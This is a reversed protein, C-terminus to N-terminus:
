LGLAQLASCDAPDPTEVDGAGLARVVLGRVVPAVPLDAHSVQVGPCVDQLVVNLAGELRASDPPTVVSDQTTWLSIWTAGDPSEDGGNLDELLDSGPVLQRCALPCLQPYAVGATALDTGHHPSGLTVVRRAHEAGGLEAVWYRALVGGASYGVVDVSGAGRSVAADAAAAVAEAAERLDGTGNGPLRVIVAERGERELRRQLMVLPSTAGGYGPVLLVPGPRELVPAIARPAPLGGDAPSRAAVAAVTGAAVGAVAAAVLLVRRRRSVPRNETVAARSLM